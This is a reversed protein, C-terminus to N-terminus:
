QEAGELLYLFGCFGVVALLLPLWLPVTLIALTIRFANM